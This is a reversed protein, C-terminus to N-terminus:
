PNARNRMEEVGVLGRGVGINFEGATDLQAPSCAHRPSAHWPLETVDGTAGDFILRSVRADSLNTNDLSTLEHNMFVVIGEDSQYAGLGDPAGAMQYDGVVEDSTLIPTIALRSPDIPILYPRAATLQGSPVETPVAALEPTAEAAPSGEAVPSADQAVAVVSGFALAAIVGIGVALCVRRRWAHRRGRQTAM